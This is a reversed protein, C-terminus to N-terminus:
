AAPKYLALLLTALMSVWPPLVVGAAQLAGLIAPLNTVGAKILEVIRQVVPGFKVALSNVVASAAFEPAAECGAVVASAIAEHAQAEPLSFVSAFEAGM